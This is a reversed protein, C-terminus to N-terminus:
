QPHAYSMQEKPQYALPTEAVASQEYSAAEKSSYDTRRGGGGRAREGYRERSTQVQTAGAPTLTIRVPTIKGNQVEVEVEAPKVVVQNLITILLHQDGPAFSLRLVGGSPAKPESYVRERQGSKDLREVRWYIDGSSVTYFDVYGTDAGAHPPNVDRTACGSSWLSATALLLPFAISQIPKM